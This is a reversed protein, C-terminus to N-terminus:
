QKIKITKVKDSIVFYVLMYISNVLNVHFFIVTLNEPPTLPRLWIAPGTDLRNKMLWVGLKHSIDMEFYSKSYELNLDYNIGFTSTM